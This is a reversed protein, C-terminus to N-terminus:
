FEIAKEYALQVTIESINHDGYDLQDPTVKLPWCSILKYTWIPRNQGDVMSFMADLKFTPAIRSEFIIVVNGAWWNYIQQAVVDKNAQVGEYFAIDIPLWRNKGPFYIEDQGHHMTIRDIEPVPRSAKHCFLLISRLPNLSQFIYRNRRATETTNDPSTPAGGLGAIRFGPM